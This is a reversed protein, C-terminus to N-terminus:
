HALVADGRHRGLLYVYGSFAGLPGCQVKLLYVLMACSLVLYIDVAALLIEPGAHSQPVHFKLPGRQNHLSACRGHLFM